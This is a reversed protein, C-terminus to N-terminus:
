KYRLPPISTLQGSAIMRKEAAMARKERESLSAVAKLRTEESAQVEKNIQM